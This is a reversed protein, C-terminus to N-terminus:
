PCETYAAPIIASEFFGERFVSDSPGYSYDPNEPLVPPRPGVQGEVRKLIQTTAVIKKIRAQTRGNNIIYPHLWIHFQNAVPTVSPLGQSLIIEPVTV